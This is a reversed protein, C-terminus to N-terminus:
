SPLRRLEEYLAETRLAFREVGFREEYSRRAAAGMRATLSPDEIFRKMAAALAHPNGPPILFGTVGEEILDPLGGVTTAVVPRGASLWELAARSVAESGTSCVIGVSCRMRFLVADNVFGLFDVPSRRRRLAESREPRGAGAALYAAAPHSKCLDQAATVFDEHGKVPDLRGLLGFVPGAPLPRPGEDEIGQWVTEVRAGPFAAKLQAAITTNAAIYSKTRAALARALAHTAPARADGRTRVIPAAGGAALAAALSHASGTHANILQLGADKVRARLTALNVWPREIAYTELGHKKARELPVSDPRGWFHVEHGRRKLAAALTLAYHSIGSDWREDEIQLIKM